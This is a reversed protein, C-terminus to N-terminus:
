ASTSITSIKEKRKTPEYKPNQTSIKEVYHTELNIPFKVRTPIAPIKLPNNRVKLWLKGRIASIVPPNAIQHNGKIITEDLLNPNRFTESGYENM